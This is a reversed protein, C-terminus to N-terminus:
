YQSTPLLKFIKIQDLLQQRFMSNNILNEVCRYYSGVNRLMSEKQHVRQMTTLALYSLIIFM